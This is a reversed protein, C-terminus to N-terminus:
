PPAFYWGALGGEWATFYKPKGFTKRQGAWAEALTLGRLHQHPRVHNYWTRFEFLKAVLDERNRVVIPDLHRKLTGFLREIRGNMWPCHRDIRQLPAGLLALAARFVKSSFRAKNDVRLTRPIGYQRLTAILESAITLSRKDAITRLALAVRTGHDLLGLILQQRGDL